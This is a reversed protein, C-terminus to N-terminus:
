FFSHRTYVEYCIGKVTENFISIKKLLSGHSLFFVYKFSRLLASLPGHLISLVGGKARQISANQYFKSGTTIGETRVLLLPVYRVKLGRRYANFVFVEEEGCGLYAGIGFREDFSPLLKSHRLVLEWSSIYAGKPSKNYEYSESSYAHMYRHDFDQAQFQIISADPYISFAQLIHNISDITYKCDDDAIVLLDGKANKLAINRNKSLGRSKSVVVRVDKRAELYLLVDKIKKHSKPLTEDLDMQQWSVLYSIGKMPSLLMTPVQTIRENFTSILFEITLM